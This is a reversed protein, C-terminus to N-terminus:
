QSVFRRIKQRGGKEDWNGTNTEARFRIWKSIIVLRVLHTFFAMFLSTFGIDSFIRNFQKPITFTCSLLIVIINEVKRKIILEPAFITAFFLYLSEVQTM